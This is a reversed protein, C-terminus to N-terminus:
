YIINRLLTHFQCEIVAMYDGWHLGNMVFKWSPWCILQSSTRWWRSQMQIQERWNRVHLFTERWNNPKATGMAGSEAFYVLWKGWKKGWVGSSMIANRLFTDLQGFFELLHFNKVKELSSWWCTDVELGTWRAHSTCGAPVGIWCRDYWTVFSEWRNALRRPPLSGNETQYPKRWRHHVQPPCIHWPSNHLISSM